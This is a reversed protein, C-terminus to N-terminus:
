AALKAIGSDPQAEDHPKEPVRDRSLLRPPADTPMEPDVVDRWVLGTKIRSIQSQSVGYREALVPQKETSRRIRIVDAPKLKTKSGRRANEARTVAELHDPNVCARVRCLHDLEMGVPISGVYQEYYVRHAYDMRGPAIHVVGYGKANKALQWLWCDTEYGTPTVM